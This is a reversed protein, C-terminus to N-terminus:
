NMRSWVEVGPIEGADLRGGPTAARLTAQGCGGHAEGRRRDQAAEYVQSTIWHAGAEIELATKERQTLLRWGADRFLRYLARGAARNAAAISTRAPDMPAGTRPDTLWMAVPGRALADVDALLPDDRDLRPYYRAFHWYIIRHAEAPDFTGGQRRHEVSWEVGRTTTLALSWGGGDGPDIDLRGWGHGQQEADPGRLLRITIRTRTRGDFCGRKTGISVSVRDSHAVRDAPIALALRAPDLLREDIIIDLAGTPVGLLGFTRCRCSRSLWVAKGTEEIADLLVPLDSVIVTLLADYPTASM